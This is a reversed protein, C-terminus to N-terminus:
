RTEDAALARLQAILAADSESEPRAVRALQEAAETLIAARSEQQARQRAAAAIAEAQWRETLGSAIWDQRAADHVAYPPHDTGGDYEGWETTGDVAFRAPDVQWQRRQAKLSAFAAVPNGAFEAALKDLARQAEEETAFAPSLEDETDDSVVLWWGARDGYVSRDFALQYLKM